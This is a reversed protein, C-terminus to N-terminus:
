FEKFCSILFTHIFILKTQGELRGNTVSGRKHYKMSLYISDYSNMFYYSLVRLTKLKFHIIHKHTTINSLVRKFPFLLDSLPSFIKGYMHGLTEAQAVHM